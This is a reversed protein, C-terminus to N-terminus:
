QLNVSKNDPPFPSIGKKPSRTVFYVGAMILVAAITKVITLQDKGYIISVVAAILPQLYIYIGNVSPSVSKLSYNNLFYAIITAGFVVFAISLWITLPIASFQTGTFSRITFPFIIILGFFFIWKMVTISEYKEMLPKILVLYLAWSPANIYVFLNGLMTAPNFDGIGASLIIMLAGSAGLIIGIVKPTTIKEKLIFHAFILIIVPIATIIISANIPTTLNLGEFFLIQNIAVGFFACIFMKFLDRKDVKESPVFFHLMGFLMVTILVRLFIISKPLMYGPMIGKAIVYNLGYITNAVLLALHAKLNRNLTRNKAFNGNVPSLQSL